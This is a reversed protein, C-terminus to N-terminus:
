AARLQERTAQLWAVLNTLPLLRNFTVGVYGGESWRVAGQQPGLGPLSIVLAAGADLSVPSELKVGGQSVDHVRMRHVIGGDRVVAFCDVEIRPMRPRPGKDASSLIEVLDVPMAFEVGVSGDRIWTVTCDVSYGTKLEITLATGEALDCYPRIMMGGESINKILCLERRGEVTMAGVRFLTLHRQGERREPPAPAKSSLSYATSDAAFQEVGSAMTTDIRREKGGAKRVAENKNKL